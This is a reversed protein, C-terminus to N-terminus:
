QKLFDEKKVINKDLNMIIYGTDKYVSQDKRRYQFLCVAQYGVPKISDAKTCLKFLSDQESQIQKWKASLEKAKSIYKTANDKANEYSSELVGRSLRMMQIEDDTKDNIEKLEDNIDHLQQTLGSAKELLLARQNITDIRILRFSDLKYTTDIDKLSVEM